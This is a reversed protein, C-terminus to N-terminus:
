NSIIGLTKYSKNYEVSENLSAISPISLLENFLYIKKNNLVQQIIAACARGKQTKAIICFQELDSM